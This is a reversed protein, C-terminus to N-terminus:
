GGFKMAEIRARVEALDDSVACLMWRGFVEDVIHQAAQKGMQFGREEAARLEGRKAAQDLAISAVAAGVSRAVDAGCKQMMKHVERQLGVFESAVAFAVDEVGIPAVLTTNGEEDSVAETPKNVFFRLGNIWVELPKNASPAEVTPKGSIDHEVFSPVRQGETAMYLEWEARDAKAKVLRAQHEAFQHAPEAAEHAIADELLQLVEKSSVVQVTGDCFGRLKNLAENAM